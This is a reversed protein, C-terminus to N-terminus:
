PANVTIKGTMNPHIRCFYDVTGAKTLVTKGSKHPPLQVEWDHNRCCAKLPL